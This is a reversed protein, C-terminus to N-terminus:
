EEDEDEEEEDEDEENRRCLVLVVVTVAAVAVIIVVVIIVIGWTPLGTRLPVLNSDLSKPGAPKSGLSVRTQEFDELAWGGDDTVDAKPTLIYLEGEGVFLEGQTAGEPLYPAPDTLAFSGDDECYISVMGDNGLKETYSADGYVYTRDGVNNCIGDPKALYYVDAFAAFTDESPKYDIFMQRCDSNNFSDGYPVLIGEDVAEQCIGIEMLRSVCGSTIYRSEAFTVRIKGYNDDTPDNVRTVFLGPTTFKCKDWREEGMLARTKQVYEEFSSFSYSVDIYVFGADDERIEYTYGNDPLRALIWDCFAAYGKPFYTSNNYIHYEVGNNRGPQVDTDRDAPIAFTITKRGAGTADTLILTSTVDAKECGTLLFFLGLASLFLLFKKTM